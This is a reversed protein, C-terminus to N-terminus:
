TDGYTGSARAAAEITLRHLDVLEDRDVQNSVYGGALVFAVPIEHRQCWDFVLNERAIIMEADVGDLGGSLGHPDVGANYLCLGFQRGGSALEALRSELTPLYSESKDVLDLTGFRGPVYSDFPHVAIDLQWVAERGQILEHTGGGCHADLDLILINRVESALEFAAVALGNFTCFGAGTERRAHHLGSSLSGAVGWTLASRAAALVGGNSSCMAPWLGTDWNIGQSEALERPQGSRVAEVYSSEHVVELQSAILSPPHVLSVGPIPSQRM